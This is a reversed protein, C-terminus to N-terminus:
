VWEWSGGEEVGFGTGGLSEKRREIRRTFELGNITKIEYNALLARPRRRPPLHKSSLLVFQFTHEQRLQRTKRQHGLEIGILVMVYSDSLGCHSSLPLFTVYM